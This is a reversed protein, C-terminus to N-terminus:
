FQSSLENVSGMVDFGWRKSHDMSHGLEGCSVKEFMRKWCCEM